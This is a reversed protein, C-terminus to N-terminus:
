KRKTYIACAYPTGREGERRASVDSERGKRRERDRGRRDERFGPDSGSVHEFVISGFFFRFYTNEITKSCTGSGHEFDILFARLRPADVSSLFLPPFPPATM